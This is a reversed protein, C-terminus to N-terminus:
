VCLCLDTGVTRAAARCRLFFENVTNWSNGERNPGEPCTFHMAQVCCREDEPWGRTALVEMETTDRFIVSYGKQFDEFPVPYGLVEACLSDPVGPYYQPDYTDPDAQMVTEHTLFVKTILPMKQFRADYFVWCGSKFSIRFGYSWLDFRNMIPVLCDIVVSSFLRKNGGVFRYFMVCPKVGKLTLLIEIHHRLHAAGAWFQGEPCNDSRHLAPLEEFGAVPNSAVCGRPANLVIDREQDRFAKFAEEVVRDFHSDDRKKEGVSTAPRDTLPSENLNLFIAEVTPADLQHSPDLEDNVWEQLEDMDEDDFERGEMGRKEMGREVWIKSWQVMAKLGYNTIDTM